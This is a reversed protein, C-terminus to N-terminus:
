LDEAFRTRSEESIALALLDDSLSLIEEGEFVTDRWTQPIANLGYHAGALQGYIAANTDADGGLNVIALAGSEFSDFDMFGRVALSLGHIVYGSTEHESFPRESSAAEMVEAAVADFHPGTSAWSVDLIRDKPLGRMAGILLAAFVETAAEAEVSYHTERASLRAMAVIDEPRRSAFGAIVVPALRMICGNGASDTRPADVPVLGGRSYLFERIAADVQTGVDFCTGTSSRRGRFRWDAYANMVAQSDYLGKDLLADALCLAMSTDDTWKGADLGFPGGGIIGSLRNAKERPLFENTTGLADCCALGLLMGRAREELTIDDNMADEGGAARESSPIELGREIPPTQIGWPFLSATPMHM